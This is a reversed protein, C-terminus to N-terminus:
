RPPRPLYENNEKISIFDKSACGWGNVSLNNKAAAWQFMQTDKPCWVRDLPYSIRAQPSIYGRRSLEGEALTATELGEWRVSFGRYVLFGATLPVLTILLFHNIKKM